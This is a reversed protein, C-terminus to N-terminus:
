KKAIVNDLKQDMKDVKDSLLDLKTAIVDMKRIENYAEVGKKIDAYLIGVYILTTVITTICISWGIKIYGKQM